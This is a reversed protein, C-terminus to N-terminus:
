GRGVEKMLEAAVEPRMVAREGCRVCEVDVFGAARVGFGLVIRDTSGCSRVGVTACPTVNHLLTGKPPGEPVPAWDVFVGGCTDRIEGADIYYWDAVMLMQGREADGWGRADAVGDRWATLYAEAKRHAEETTAENVARVLAIHKDHVDAM